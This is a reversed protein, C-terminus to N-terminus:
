FRATRPERLLSLPRSPAAENGDDMGAGAAPQITCPGGGGGGGGESRDRRVIHHPRQADARLQPKHNTTQPKHNTTKNQPQTTLPLCECQELSQPWGYHIVTRVDAKNIGMGFAVTAAVAPLAGAIFRDQVAARAKASMGAHYHEIAVGERKLELAMKETLKRTPLYIITCCPTVVGRVGTGGTGGRGVGGPGGVGGCLGLLPGVDGIIDRKSIQRVEFRLNPRGFSQVAVHPPPRGPKLKGFLSDVIDGRVRVTATATLAMVPVPPLGRTVQSFLARLTRYTPRFDHGWKSVCHAEDVAFLAVGVAAHLAALSATLRGGTEPCIYVLSFRGAMAAPEVGPDTQASGLFCATIGIRTMHAVQDKMLSILPSVVVVVSGGLAPPMGDVGSGGGLLPALVAPAQFCVSKGSGTGSLVLSDRGARWASLVELQWGRFAAIGLRAAAAALAADPLDLKLEANRQGGLRQGGRRQGGLRGAVGVGQSDAVAAVADCTSDPISAMLRDLDEDEDEDTEGRLGFGAEADKAAAEAEEADDEHDPRDPTGASVDDNGNESDGDDGSNDSSDVWVAHDASSGSNSASASAADAAPGAPEVDTARPLLCM